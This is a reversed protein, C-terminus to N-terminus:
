SWFRHGSWSQRPVVIPRTAEGGSSRDYQNIAIGIYYNFTNYISESSFAFEPKVEVAAAEGFIVSLFPIVMSLSFVSFISYFINFIFILIVNGKFPTLYQLSKRFLKM